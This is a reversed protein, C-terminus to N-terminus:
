TFWQQRITLQVRLFWILHFKFRFVFSDIWLIWKFHRRRCPLIKDLPIHTLNTGRFLYWSCDCYTYDIGNEWLRTWPSNTQQHIFIGVGLSFQSKWKWAQYTKISSVSITFKILSVSKLILILLMEHYWSIRCGKVFLKHAWLRIKVWNPCSDDCPQACLIDSDYKRM